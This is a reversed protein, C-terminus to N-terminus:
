DSRAWPDILPVGCDAFDKLNRTAIAHAGYARATAAIMADEVAIPKGAAERAHRIEGYLAACLRDFPLIQDRFGTDFFITIRALLDDRKRGASMRALGYRIEAECVAATFVSEPALSEVYALVAGDPEARVLESIVNTDLLIV